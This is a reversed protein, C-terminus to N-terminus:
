KGNVSGEASTSIIDSSPAQNSIKPCANKSNNTFKLDLPKIEKDYIERNLDIEYFLNLERLIGKLSLCDGRNPTLELNFIDGDIEHEHGLQFLKDSLDNINPKETISNVLDKYLIKM